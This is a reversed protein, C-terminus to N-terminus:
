AWREIAARITTLYEDLGIPKRLYESVGLEFACRREVPNDSSTFVVVPSGNTNADRFRELINLGDIKPINLDLIILDPTFRNLVRLAEEGDSAITLDPKIPMERIAVRVLHADASNDEILLVCPTRSTEAMIPRSEGELKPHLSPYCGRWM